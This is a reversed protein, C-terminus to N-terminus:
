LRLALCIGDNEPSHFPLYTFLNVSQWDPDEAIARNFNEADRFGTNDAVMLGGSKLCNRCLSLAPFYFEKDIDMFIMDFQADTNKMMELADGEWVDACDSLGAKSLNARARAALEPSFEATVLHGGTERCAGALWISSYGTATGIELVQKARSVRVLLSLLQGVVPGVIPIEERVAEAELEMLLADRPPLFQRFYRHPEEIMPSAM